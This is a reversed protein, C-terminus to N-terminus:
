ILVFVNSYKTVLTQNFYKMVGDIESDLKGPEDSQNIDVNVNVRIGTTNSWICALGFVIAVALRKMKGISALFKPQLTAPHKKCLSEKTLFSHLLLLDILPQHLSCNIM